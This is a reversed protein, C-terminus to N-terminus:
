VDKGGGGIWLKSGDGNEVVGIKDGGTDSLKIGMSEDVDIGGAGGEKRLLTGDPLLAPDM